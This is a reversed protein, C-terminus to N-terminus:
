LEDLKSSPILYGAALAVLPPPDDLFFHISPVSITSTNAPIPPPIAAHFIISFFLLSEEDEEDTEDVLLFPSFLVLPMEPSGDDKM